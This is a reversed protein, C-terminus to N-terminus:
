YLWRPTIQALRSILGLMLLVGFVALLGGSIQQIRRVLNSNRNIKKFLPQLGLAAGLFPLGMGLSYILLYLVAQLQTVQNSLIATLIAGLIPGICPSWGASFFIGMFLANLYHNDSDLKQIPKWEFDLFPIHIIGAMQMGYVFIILGGIRAIWPKVYFFINGILTSTYGITIFVLTFGLIFFLGPLLISQKGNNPNNVGLVGLYIPVM